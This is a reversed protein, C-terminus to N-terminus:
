QNYGTVQVQSQSQSQVQITALVTQIDVKPSRQAFPGNNQHLASIILQLPLLAPTEVPYSSTQFRGYM